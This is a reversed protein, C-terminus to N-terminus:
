FVGLFPTPKLLFFFFLDDPKSLSIWAGGVTEMTCVSLTSAVTPSAVTYLRVGLFSGRAGGGLGAVSGDVVVGAVAHSCFVVRNSQNKLKKM